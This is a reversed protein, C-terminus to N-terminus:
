SGMILTSPARPYLFKPQIVVDLHIGQVGCYHVGKNDLKFEASGVLQASPTHQIDTGEVTLDNKKREPYM